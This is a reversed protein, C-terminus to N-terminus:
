VTKDPDGIKIRINPGGTSAEFPIPTSGDDVRIGVIAIQRNNDEDNEYEVPMDRFIGHKEQSGFDVRIDEVAGVVGDDAITYTVDFSRIVWDEEARADASLLASLVLTIILALTLRLTGATM